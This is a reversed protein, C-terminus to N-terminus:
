HAIAGGLFGIVTILGALILVIAFQIKWSSRRFIAWTLLAYIFVSVFALNRHLIVYSYKQTGIFPSVQLLGFIAALISSLGGLVVIIKSARHCVEVKYGLIIFIFLLYGFAVPFHVVKNHMHRFIEESPNLVFPEEEKVTKHGMSMLQKGNVAITDGNVVTVTDVKTSSSKGHDKEGHAFVNFNALALLLLLTAAFANKVKKRSPIKNLLKEASYVNRKNKNM